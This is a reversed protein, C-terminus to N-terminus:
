DVDVSDIVGVVLSCLPFFKISLKLEVEEGAIMISTFSLFYLGCDTFFISSPTSLGHVFTVDDSDDHPRAANLNGGEDYLDSYLLDV